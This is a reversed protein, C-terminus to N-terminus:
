RLDYMPVSLEAVRDRLWTWDLITRRWSQGIDKRLKVIGAIADPRKARSGLQDLLKALTDCQEPTITPLRSQVWIVDGALRQYGADQERARREISQRSARKM